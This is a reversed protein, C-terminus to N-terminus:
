CASVRQRSHPRSREISVLAQEMRDRRLATVEAAFAARAEREDVYMRAATPLSLRYRIDVGEQSVTEVRMLVVGTEARLLSKRVMM